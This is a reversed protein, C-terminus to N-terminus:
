LNRFDLTDSVKRYHRVIAGQRDRTVKRAQFVGIFRSKFRKFRDQMKMLVIRLVGDEDWPGEKLDTPLKRDMTEAIWEGKADLRNTWANRTWVEGDGLDLALWPGWLMFRKGSGGRLYAVCRNLTKRSSGTIMNYVSTIGGFDINDATRIIGTEITHAIKEENTVWKLPHGQAKELGAIRRRIIAAERDIQASVDEHTRLSGDDHCIAIRGEECRIASLIDEARAADALRNQANLHHGEDVEVGYNIQPFYVDLLYHKRPDSPNIVCQQTVPELEPAGIREYLANIVYNEFKKRGTRVSLMFALYELKNM